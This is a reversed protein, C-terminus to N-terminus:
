FALHRVVSGYLEAKRFADLCAKAKRMIAVSPPLLGESRECERMLADSLPGGQIARKELFAVILVRIPNAVKNALLDVVTHLVNEARSGKDTVDTHHTINVNESWSTSWRKM